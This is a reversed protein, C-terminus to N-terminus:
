DLRAATRRLAALTSVDLDPYSSRGLGEPCRHDLPLAAAEATSYLSKQNCQAVAVVAHIVNGSGLRLITRYGRARVTDAIARATRETMASAM